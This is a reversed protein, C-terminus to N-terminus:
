DIEKNIARVKKLQKPQWHEIAWSLIEAVSANKLKSAPDQRLLTLLLFLTKSPNETSVAQAFTQKSLKSGQNDVIVPIHCYYPTNYGLLQQLFIQRTTSDLLDFGRLVHSINQLHDDIVVALQYAIVGDKRNIIFDGHQQAINDTQHDQLQDDFSIDVSKSKIRLSYPSEPKQQRALCFGPYISSKNAALVKRTCTCPYTLDQQFLQKIVAQYDQQHNSQFVIDGDWNLGYSQLTHIIDEAAGSVNRLTDSDDIRLM